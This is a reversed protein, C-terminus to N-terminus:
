FNKESKKTGEGGDDEKDCLPNIVTAIVIESNEIEGVTMMLDAFYQLTLTVVYIEFCDTLRFNNLISKCYKDWVFSIVLM